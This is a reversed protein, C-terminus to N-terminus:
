KISKCHVNLILRETFAYNKVLKVSIQLIKDTCTWTVHVMNNTFNFFHNEPQIRVTNKNYFKFFSLTINYVRLESGPLGLSSKSLKLYFLFVFIQSQMTGQERVAQIQIKFSDKRPTLKIHVFFFEVPAEESDVAMKLQNNEAYTNKFVFKGDSITDLIM